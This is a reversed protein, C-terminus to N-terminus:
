ARAAAFAALARWSGHTVHSRAAELARGSARQHTEDCREQGHQCGWSRGASGSCPGARLAAEPRRHRTSGRELPRMQLWGHHDRQLWCAGEAATGQPPGAHGHARGQPLWWRGAQTDANTVTGTTATERCKPTGILRESPRNQARKRHSQARPRVHARIATGPGRLRERLRGQGTAAPVHVHRQAVTGARSATMADRTGYPDRGAQRRRM